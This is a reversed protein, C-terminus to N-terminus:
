NVVRCSKRIEGRPGTLVDITGMHQMAAAFKAAWVSGYKANYAVLKARSSSSLLTQDTTLVVRHNKIDTYYRNDLRNPTQVDLPVTPDPASTTNSPPPCATILFAAYIPDRSPDVVPYLRNSFSSCHSVGISHAGSLTVMEDLSLGKQCFQGPTTQRQLLSPTSKRPHRQLSLCSWRSARGRLSGKNAPHDRESLIGPIPDLLVSGDCGQLGYCNSSM